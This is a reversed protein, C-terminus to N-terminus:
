EEFHLAPGLKRVIRDAIWHGDWWEVPNVPLGQLLMTFHLHDGGALGTEGTLGLIDGRQVQQDEKVSISALHGYLSMLGYGHDIVVANGFIGFYKALVIRGSNAAPIPARRTVALDFGLHDQHDVDRDGYRYTRRDAFASMVKGNPMMQFPRSWLFEPRSRRALEGLAAANKKRLEGNIALYNALLGGRDQFDPTQSVIEPVVKNLFEDTLAITDARFPKPFFKEVFSMEAENGADDAAVLRVNPAAASYPVAFLAFRDQKAAGPLAFGPFWWEGVRVGDRVASEGVRYVVTECGGQAVYAQTSRVELSPPTLRVPLTAIEVVPDPKRLWSGVRDATVRISADGSRLGPVTDRGVELRIEDHGTRPGWFALASRHAYSKEALTEVRDGQQFEVRVRVLGKGPEAVRVVVPTKRGIARAGPEIKVQAAPGVALFATTAAAAALLLVM